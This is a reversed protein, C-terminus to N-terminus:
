GGAVPLSITFTTGSGPSSVCEIRGGHHEEVIQRCSALGLGSGGKRTTFHPEFIRAQVEPPMGGGDDAVILRVHEGDGRVAIRIHGGEGCAQAANLLLNFLVRRIESPHFCLPPLDRDCDLEINRHRLEPLATLESGVLERALQALNGEVAHPTYRLRKANAIAEAMMEALDDRAKQMFVIRGAQGAAAGAALSDLLVFSSLLNRMDHILINTKEFEAALLETDRRIRRSLVQMLAVLSRPQGALYADFHERGIALLVSEEEALVSASRPKTEIIAMEGVYDVPLIETVRRGEKCVRLRGSLLIFMERGPQGEQCVVSGAPYTRRQLRASFERLEEDSFAAFLDIGRLLSELDTM